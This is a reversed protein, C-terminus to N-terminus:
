TDKAIDQHKQISFRSSTSIPPEISLYYKIFHNFQRSFPLEYYHYMFNGNNNQM